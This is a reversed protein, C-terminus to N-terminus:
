ANVRYANIAEALTECHEVTGRKVVTYVAKQTAHDYEFVIKKGGATSLAVQDVTKYNDLDIPNIQHTM